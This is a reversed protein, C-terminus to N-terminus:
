AHKETRRSQEVFADGRPQRRIERGQRYAETEAM